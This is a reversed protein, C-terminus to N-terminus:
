GAALFTLLQDVLESESFNNSKILLSLIDFHDDARKTIAEVKDRVLQLCIARINTTTEEFTRAMKWPLLQVFRRSFTVSLLFYLFKTKGPKLLEDYNKILPEDPNKLIHFDRGFAAIGIVDLAAKGAWTNMEITGAGREDLEAAIADSFAVAKKWMTPYLEKIHSFKFAPQANKRLFKHRVGEVVVLGDGLM